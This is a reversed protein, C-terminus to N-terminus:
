GASNGSGGGGGSSTAGGGISIGGSGGGMIVSGGSNGGVNINGGVSGTSVNPVRSEGSVIPFPWDDGFIEVNQASAQGLSAAGFLVVGLGVAAAKIMRRVSANRLVSQQTDAMSIGRRTFFRALGISM